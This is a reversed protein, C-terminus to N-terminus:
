YKGPVWPDEEAGLDISMKRGLVFLYDSLRNLYRIVLEDVHSVDSLRIVIREARRCIARAIHCYSVHAHGGPLVFSRLVPLKEDMADIFDELNQVHQDTLDPIKAKSKEPDSALHAGITFLNDQILRIQDKSEGTLVDKVLGLHANLEDVTGYSEIRLEGKSVKTGGM